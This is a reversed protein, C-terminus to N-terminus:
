LQQLNVSATISVLAEAAVSACVRGLGPVVKVKSQTVTVCNGRRVCVIDTHTPFM